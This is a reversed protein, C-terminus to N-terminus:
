IITTYPMLDFKNEYILQLNEDLKDTHLLHEYKKNDSMPYIDKFSEARGVQSYIPNWNDCTSLSHHTDIYYDISIDSINNILHNPDIHPCRINTHIDRELLRFHKKPVYILNHCIGGYSYDRHGYRISDDIKTFISLFYKKIYFDLRTFLMFNYPNLDMNLIKNNTEMVFDNEHPPTHTKFTHNVLYPKYWELLMADHTPNLTYSHIAVDTDTNLQSKMYNILRIHSYSALKQRNTADSSDSRDRTMQKGLRFSEGTIVLLCRMYM